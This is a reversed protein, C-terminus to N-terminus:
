KGAEQPASHQSVKLQHQRYGESQTYTIYISTMVLLIIINISILISAIICKKM